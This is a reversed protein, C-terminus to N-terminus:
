GDPIKGVQNEDMITVSGTQGQPTGIVNDEKV